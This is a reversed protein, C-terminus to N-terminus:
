LLNVSPMKNSQLGLGTVTSNNDSRYSCSVPVGSSLNAAESNIVM